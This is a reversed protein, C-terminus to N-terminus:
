RCLYTNSMNSMSCWSVMHILDGMRRVPCSMSSLVFKMQHWNLLGIMGLDM